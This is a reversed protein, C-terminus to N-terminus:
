QLLELPSFKNKLKQSFTGRLQSLINIYLIGIVILLTLLAVDTDYCNLLLLSGMIGVRRAIKRSLQSSYKLVYNVSAM